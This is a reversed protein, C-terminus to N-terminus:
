MAISFSNARLVPNSFRLDCRFCLETCAFAELLVVAVWFYVLLSTVPERV